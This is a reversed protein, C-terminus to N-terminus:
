AFLAACLSLVGVERRLACHQSLVVATCPAPCCARLPVRALGVTCPAELSDPSLLLGTLAMHRPELYLGDRLSVPRPASPCSRQRLCLAM